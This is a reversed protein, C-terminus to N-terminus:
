TVEKAEAPLALAYCNEKQVVLGDSVLDDLVPGYIAKRQVRFTRMLERLPCPGLRALKDLLLRRFHEDEQLKLKKGEERSFTAHENLARNAVHIAYPICSDGPTSRNELSMLTWALKWPLDLVWDSTPLGVGSPVVSQLFSTYEMLLEYDAAVVKFQAGAGVRRSSLVEAAVDTYLKYGGRLTERNSITHPKCFNPRVVLSQQMLRQVERNTSGMAQVALSHSCTMMLTAKLTALRGYGENPHPRDFFDDHGELANVIRGLMDLWQRSPFKRGIEEFLRGSPYVLSLQHDLIEAIGKNFADPAPSNLLFSPFRLATSARLHALSLPRASDFERGVATHIEATINRSNPRNDIADLHNPTVARSMDRLRSQLAEIPALLLQQLRQWGADERGVILLNFRPSVMNDTPGLVGADGGAIGGLLAAAALAAMEPSTGTAAGLASVVFGPRCRECSYLKKIIEPQELASSTTTNM